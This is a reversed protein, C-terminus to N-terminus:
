MKTLQTCMDIKQCTSVMSDYVPTVKVASAGRITKPPNILVQMKKGIAMMSKRIGSDNLLFFFRSDRIEVLLEPLESSSGVTLVREEGQSSSVGGEESRFSIVM